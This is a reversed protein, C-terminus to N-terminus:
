VIACTGQFTMSVALVRRPVGVRWDEICQSLEIRTTHAMTHNILVVVNNNNDNNYHQRHDIDIPERVLHRERPRADVGEAHQGVEVLEVLRQVMLGLREALRHLM